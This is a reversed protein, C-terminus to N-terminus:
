APKWHRTALLEAAQLVINAENRRTLRTVAVDLGVWEAHAVEGPQPILSGSEWALLFFTVTKHIRTGDADFRYQVTGLLEDLRVRLGVEELVERLAAQELGEGPEIRGKPLAWISPRLYPQILVCQWAGGFRRVVVGGASHVTSM